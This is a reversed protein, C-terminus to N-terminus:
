SRDALVKQIFDVLEPNDRFVSVMTIGMGDVATEEDVKKTKPLNAVAWVGHFIEHILVEIQRDWHLGEQLIRIRLEYWDCDGLFSDAAALAPDLEEIAFRYGGIWVEKPFDPHPALKGIFVRPAVVPPATAETAELAQLM